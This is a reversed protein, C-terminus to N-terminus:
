KKTIGTGGHHYYHSGFAGSNLIAAHDLAENHTPFGDVVKGSPKHIVEHHNSKPNFKVTHETNEAKEFSKKKYTRVTKIEPHNPNKEIQKHSTISNKNITANDQSKLTGKKSLKIDVFDSGVSKVKGKYKTEGEKGKVKDGVKLNQELHTDWAKSLKTGKSPDIDGNQDGDFGKSKHLNKQIEKPSFTVGSHSKGKAWNKLDKHTDFQLIKGEGVHPGKVYYEPGEIAKASSVNHEVGSHHTLTTGNGGAAHIDKPSPVSYAKAKNLSKVKKPNFDKKTYTKGEQSIHTHIDRALIQGEGSKFYPSKIHAVFGIPAGGSLAKEDHVSIVSGNIHEKGKRGFNISSHITDGVKLNTKLHETFPHNNSVAKNLTDKKAEVEEPFSFDGKEFYETCAIKCAINFLEPTGGKELFTPIITRPEIHNIVCGRIVNVAVTLEEDSGEYVLEGKILFHNGPSYQKWFMDEGQAKVLAAQIFGRRFQASEILNM